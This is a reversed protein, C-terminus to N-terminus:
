REIVNPCEEVNLGAETDVLSAISPCLFLVGTCTSCEALVIGLDFNKLIFVVHHPQASMHDLIGVMDM